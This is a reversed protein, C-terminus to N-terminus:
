RSRPADSGLDGCVSSSSWPNIASVDMAEYLQIDGSAVKAGTKSRAIGAVMGHSLPISKGTRYANAAGIAYAKAAEIDFSLVRRKFVHRFLVDVSDRLQSGPRDDQDLDVTLSIESMSVATVYTTTPDLRDLFAMVNADPNPKRMELLVDTDLIIM